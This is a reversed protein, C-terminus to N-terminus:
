FADDLEALAEDSLDLAVTERAPALYNYYTTNFVQEVVLGENPLPVLLFYRFIPSLVAPFVLAIIVMRRVKLKTEINIAQGLKFMKIILLLGTALLILDTVYPYGSNIVENAGSMFIAISLVIMSYYIKLLSKNINAEDLYYLGIYFLLFVASALFFDYWSILVFIYSLIGGAAMLFGSPNIQGVHKLFLAKGNEKTTKLFVSVGALFMACGIIMPLLGPSEYWVTSIGGVTGSFPMTASTAIVCTAFIMVVISFAFDWGHMKQQELQEDTLVDTDVTNPNHKNNM